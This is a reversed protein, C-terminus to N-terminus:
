TASPDVEPPLIGLNVLRYQMALRSVQYLKALEYVTESDIAAYEEIDRKLLTEPMLLGAAFRNAEIEEWNVGKSSTTNRWHLRFDGDVYEIREGNDPHNFFHGLEHAITFRQRNRHQNPNVAIVVHEGQRVIAGFIDDNAPLDVLLIRHDRIIKNLDVPRTDIGSKSLVDEPTMKAM